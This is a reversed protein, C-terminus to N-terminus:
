RSKIIKINSKLYNVTGAFFYKTIIMMGIVALGGISFMVIGSLFGALNIIFDSTLHIEDIIIPIVPGFISGISLVIGSLTISIAAAWLGILVGVLGLYPGLVFILNFFSLSVSAIIAKFIFAINNTNDDARNVLFEARSVKGIQAPNGLSKSMEEETKGDEKGNRFHEVYDSLIEDKDESSLGKLNSRLITMFDKETM